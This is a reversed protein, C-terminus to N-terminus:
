RRTAQTRNAVATPPWRQISITVAQLRTPGPATSRPVERAPSALEEGADLGIADPGEGPIVIPSDSEAFAQGPRVLGPLEAVEIEEGGAQNLLRYAGGTILVSGALAGGQLFSRRNLYVGEPTIESSPIPRPPTM